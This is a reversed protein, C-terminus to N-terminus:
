WKEYLNIIIGVAVAIKLMYFLNKLNSNIKNQSHKIISNIIM